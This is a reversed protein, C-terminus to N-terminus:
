VLKDSEPLALPPPISASPSLEQIKSLLLHCIAYMRSISVGHEEAVRYLRFNVGPYLPELSRYIALAIFIPKVSKRLLWPGHKKFVQLAHQRIIPTIGQIELTQLYHLAQQTPLPKVGHTCQFEHIATQLVHMHDVKMRLMKCVDIENVPLAHKKTEDLFLVAALATTTLESPLPVFCKKGSRYMLANYQQIWFWPTQLTGFRAQLRQICQEFSRLKASRNSM